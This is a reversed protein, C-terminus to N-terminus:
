NKINIKTAFSPFLRDSSPDILNLPWCHRQRNFTVPFVAPIDCINVTNAVAQFVRIWGGDPIICLMNLDM